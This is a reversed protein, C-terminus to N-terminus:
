ALYASVRGAILMCWEIVTANAVRFQEPASGLKHSGQNSLFRYLKGLLEEEEAGVFGHVRLYQKYDAFHNVSPGVPAKKGIKAEVKFCAEQCFNEFFTRLLEIASKFDFGSSATAGRRDIENSAESLASSFGLAQLRSLLVQRDADIAPNQQQRIASALRLYRVRAVVARVEVAIEAFAHRAYTSRDIGQGPGSSMIGSLSRATQEAQDVAAAHAIATTRAAASEITELDSERFLSSEFRLTHILGRWLEQVRLDAGIVNMLVGLNGTAALTRAVVRANRENLVALLELPFRERDGRNATAYLRELLDAPESTLTVEGELAVFTGPAAEGAHAMPHVPRWDESRYVMGQTAQGALLAVQEAFTV